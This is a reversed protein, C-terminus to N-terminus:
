EIIKWPLSTAASGVVLMARSDTERVFKELAAIWIKSNEAAVEDFLGADVVLLQPGLLLGRLLGAIKHEDPTLRGAPSAMFTEWVAKDMGLELLWRALTEETSKAQRKNHYWLPLTINEWTKLNSIVGGNAPIWGINGPRSAELPEQNFLIEGTIPALDGLTMGIIETKAEHSDARLIRIEGSAIMFSLVGSKASAVQKFQLLTGM